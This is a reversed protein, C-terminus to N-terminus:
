PLKFLFEGPCDPRNCVGIETNSFGYATCHAGGYKPNPNTCERYRNQIGTGCTNSCAWESWSSWGGHVLIHISKLDYTCLIKIIQYQLIEFPIFITGKKRYTCAQENEILESSKGCLQYQRTENDCNSASVM